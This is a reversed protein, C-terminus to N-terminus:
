SRAPARVKRAYGGVVRALKEGPDRTAKTWKNALPSGVGGVGGVRFGGSDDEGYRSRAGAGLYAQTQAILVESHEPQAITNTGQRKEVWSGGDTVASRGSFSVDGGGGSTTTEGGPKRGTLVATLRDRAAGVRARRDTQQPLPPQSQFTPLYGLTRHQARAPSQSSAMSSAALPVHPQAGMSPGSSSQSGVGGVVQGEGLLRLNARSSGPPLVAATTSARPNPATGDRASAVATSRNTRGGGTRSSKM